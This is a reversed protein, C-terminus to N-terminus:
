SVTTDLASPVTRLVEKRWKIPGTLNFFPEGEQKAPEVLLSGMREGKSQRGNDRLRCHFSGV